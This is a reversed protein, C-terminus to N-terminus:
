GRRSLGATAGIVTEAFGGLEDSVENRSKGRVAIVLRDVGLAAMQEAQEVTRAGGVTFEIADPDRGVRAAEERVSGIVRRLTEHLDLGPGVFPFYGDGHHAARRVAAPSAGGIHLPITGRPPRPDCRVSKLTVFDGEFTTVEESWLARIAAIYEDMRRGRDRFGMGVAEYEEPLEGVGIGLELRGGSLYDVTAATKAFVTPQHEPLIVVNTGLKISSTRGAVFALWALPDPIGGRQWLRDMKGDPSAAYPTVEDGIAVVVHEPCWLSEFGAAEATEALHIARDPEPFATSAFVIGWKM